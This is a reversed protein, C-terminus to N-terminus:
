SVFSSECDYSASIGSKYYLVKILYVIHNTVFAVKLRSQVCYPLTCKWLIHVCSWTLETTTCQRHSHSGMALCQRSWRKVIMELASTISVFEFTSTM